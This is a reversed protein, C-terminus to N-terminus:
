VAHNLMIKKADNNLDIFQCEIAQTKKDYSQIRVQVNKAKLENGIYLSAKVTTNQFEVFPGSGLLTGEKTGAKKVITVLPLPSYDMVMILPIENLSISGLALGKFKDNLITDEIKTWSSMGPTFLMTHLNIRKEKLAERLEVLSYPGYMESGAINKRDKGIKLYFLEENEKVNNWNFIFRVEPSSTEEISDFSPENVATKVASFTFDELKTEKQISAIQIAEIEPHTEVHTEVVDFKLEAVDKLREWNQFGKKWIYTDNNIQNELFLIKLAEESVPGVRDSGVVYYWNVM